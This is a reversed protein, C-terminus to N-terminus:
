KGERAGRYRPYLLGHLALRRELGALDLALADGQQLAAQETKFIGCDGDWRPCGAVEEALRRVRHGHELALEPQGGVPNGPAESDLPEVGLERRARSAGQHPELAENIAQLRLVVVVPQAGLDHTLELILEPLQAVGVEGSE